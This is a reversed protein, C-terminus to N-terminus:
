PHSAAPWRRRKILSSASVRQDGDVDAPRIAELAALTEPWLVAARRVKQKAVHASKNRKTMLVNGNIERRMLDGAESAYLCANLSPMMAAKMELTPAVALMAHFDKREIPHPDVSEKQAPVLVACADKANRCDIVDLGRKAAMGIIAKVKAFPHGISM